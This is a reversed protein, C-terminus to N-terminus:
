DTKNDRLVFLAADLIGLKAAPSIELGYIGDKLQGFTMLGKMFNDFMRDAAGYGVTESHKKDNMEIVGKLTKNHVLVLGLWSTM